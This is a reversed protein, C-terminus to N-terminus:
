GGALKDAWDGGGLERDRARLQDELDAPVGAPLDVMGESWSGVSRAMISDLPLVRVAGDPMVVAGARGRIVLLAGDDRIMSSKM